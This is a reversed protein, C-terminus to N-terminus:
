NDGSFMVDAGGSTPEPDKMWGMIMKKQAEQTHEKGAMIEKNVKEMIEIAKLENVESFVIAKLQKFEKQQDETPTGKYIYRKLLKRYANGIEGYDKNRSKLWNKTEYYDNIVRPQFGLARGYIAARSVETDIDKLKRGKSDTIEQLKEWHLAQHAGRYSSFIDGVAHLAVALEEMNFDIDKPNMLIPAVAAMGQFARKPVEGFAGLALDKPPTGNLFLKEITQEMGSLFAGREGVNFREGSIMQAMLGWAGDTAFANWEEPTEGPEYGAMNTLEALMWKGFPVGAGGYLALQGTLIAAKQSGTFKQSAGPFINPLMAEIGKTTVQMFQTPLSFVGKQWHARNARNLNLMKKTTNTVIQKLADDDIVTSKGAAKQAKLWLDRATLFAYGRTFREGETFFILGKNAAQALAERGMGFGQAVANYDATSRVSEYLGTKEMQTLVEKLEKPDKGMSKATRTVAEPNGRVFYAMRLAALDGLRKPASLPDISLAVAAGQAQVFLQAPNFWGLLSHFAAGRMASYPDKSALDMVGRRLKGGLLPKGEMWEAARRTGNTWAIESNTPMRLQDRIWTQMETLATHEKSGPSAIVNANIGKGPDDIRGKASNLWRQIMGMRWENMPLTTAVNQLNRQMAEHASIFKPADGQLGTLIDHTARPSTYLSGFSSIAEAERSEESLERDHLAKFEINKGTEDALKQEQKAYTQADTLNDFRRHTIIRGKPVSIGDVVDTRFSKVFYWANEAIDPVYGPNKNLVTGPLDQIKDSKVIAHRFRGHGIDFANKTSILTYGEEEMRKWDVGHVPRVSGAGRTDWVQLNKDRPLSNLKIPKGIVSLEATALSDLINIDKYGDFELQRRVQKNKLYHLADFIDRQAFYSSIEKPDKLSIGGTGIGSQLEEVTFVKGERKNWDNGARLVADVKQRSERNLGKRSVRAADNLVQLTAGQTYGIRTAVEVADKLIGDIVIEPSSLKSRIIGADLVDLGGISNKTYTVPIQNEIGELKYKVVFGTDTSDTIEAGEVHWGYNEWYDKKLDELSELAKEKIRMDESVTVASEKLYGKGSMVPDLTTQVAGRRLEIEAALKTSDAALGDAAEPIVKEYNFPNMNAAAVIPDQQLAEAVAEDGAAATNARAATEVDGTKAIQRIANAQKATKILKWLGTLGITAYDISNFATALDIDDEYHPNIFEMALMAAKHENVTGFDKTAEVIDQLLHPWLKLREGMPLMRVGLIMQKLEEFPNASADIGYKNVLSNVDWPQDLMLFLEAYNTIAGLTSTKEIMEGVTRAYYLQEARERDVKGEIALINAHELADPGTTLEMNEETVELYDEVAGLNEIQDEGITEAVVGQLLEDYHLHYEATIGDIVTQKDSTALEASTQLFADELSLESDMNSRISAGHAAILAAEKKNALPTEEMLSSVDYGADLTTFEM